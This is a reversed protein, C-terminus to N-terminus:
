TKGIILSCKKCSYVLRQNKGKSILWDHICPKRKFINSFKM